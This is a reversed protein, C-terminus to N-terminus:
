NMRPTNFVNIQPARLIPRMAQTRRQGRGIVEYYASGDLLAYQDAEVTHSAWNKAPRTDQRVAGNSRILPYYYDRSYAKRTLTCCPNILM